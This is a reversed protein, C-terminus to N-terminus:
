VIWKLVFLIGSVIFAIVAYQFFAHHYIALQDSLVIVTDPVNAFQAIKGAFVGGFGLAVFWVGMMMGVLHRPSLVTVAALGIPSLLLEGITICLYAFVIWLPNILGAANPFQTSFSLILFALGAFFIGSAFKTVTSPNKENQSLVQWSWAFLPGLLIIFISELGYFLTTSLTISGIQKNVLRYIFLNSSFFMQLYLMWYVISSLILFMLLLLPKRYQINQRIIIMSLLVLLVIGTVPLLSNAIWQNKLLFSLLIIAIFAYCLSWPSHFHKYKQMPTFSEQLHSIHKLGYWFTILGILMGISALMFSIHWGFYDKIYGSTLGALFAGTNIGVYFLTFGSDRRPNDITYLTGLLSSINPKFLGNGVIITALAPYFTIRLSLSLLACGLVLFFGGWVITKSFGLVKDALVGGILPSIYVFATFTGLITYSESDPLNFYQTMYLILLGQVIYFGYREWLETLFLYPLAQPHRYSIPM